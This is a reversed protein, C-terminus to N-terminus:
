MTCVSPEGTCTYGPEVKCSSSCGDGSTTNGDDCGNAKTEPGRLLGDGCIPTCTSPRSGKCTWGTEITCAASCGDNDRRNADDCEEAGSLFGDGCRFARVTQRCTGLDPGSQATLVAEFLGDNRYTHYSLKHASHGGDGFNWNYTYPNGTGGSADGNFTVELPAQGSTPNATCAVRLGEAFTQITKACTATTGGSRATVRATFTGVGRYTHLPDKETSTGGDGFDWQYSFSGTGGEPNVRFQVDGPAVLRDPDATCNLRIDSEVTVAETTCTQGSTALTVRGSYSGGPLTRRAAAGTAATGDSFVWRFDGDQAKDASATFTVQLPARGSTPSVNCTLGGPASPNQECNAACLLLVVAV